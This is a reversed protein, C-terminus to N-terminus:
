PCLSLKPGVSMAVDLWRVQGDIGDEICKKWGIISSFTQLVEEADRTSRQMWHVWDELMWHVWGMHPQMFVYFRHIIKVAKPTASPGTIGVSHPTSNAAGTNNTLRIIAALLRRSLSHEAATAM